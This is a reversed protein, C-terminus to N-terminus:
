PSTSSASAVSEAGPPDDAAYQPLARHEFARRASDHAALTGVGETDQCPKAIARDVQDGVLPGVVPGRHEGREHASPAAGELYTVRVGGVLGAPKRM